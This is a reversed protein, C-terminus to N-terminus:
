NKLGSNVVDFRIPLNLRQVIWSAEEVSWSSKALFTRAVGPIVGLRDAFSEVNNIGISQLESWVTNRIDVGFRGAPDDDFDRDSM